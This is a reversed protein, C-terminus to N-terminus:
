DRVRGRARKVDSRHRKGEVRRRKSSRTPKTAKRPRPPEAVAALLERLKELCDDMNRPQDRFRDSSIVLAGDATLRSGFTAIFRERVDEPLSPSALIAWRLTAKSNVKNVNQGGPGSSRSFSFELESLPIRIRPPIELM